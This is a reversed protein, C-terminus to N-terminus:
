VSQRGRARDEEECFAIWHEADRKLGFSWVRGEPGEEVVAWRSLRRNKPRKVVNYKSKM